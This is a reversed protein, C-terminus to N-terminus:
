KQIEALHKTKGTFDEILKVINFEPIKVYEFIKELREIMEKPSNKSSLKVKDILDGWFIIQNEGIYSNFDEKNEKYKGSIIVPKVNEAECAAEFTDVIDCTAMSYPNKSDYALGGYIIASIEDDKYRKMERLENIKETVFTKINELNNDIGPSSYGVFKHSPSFINIGVVSGIEEFKRVSSKNLIRGKTISCNETGNGLLIHSTKLKPYKKHQILNISINKM